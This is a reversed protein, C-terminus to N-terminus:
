PGAEAVHIGEEALHARARGMRRDTSFAYWNEPTDEDHHGELLDGLQDLDVSLLREPLPNGQVVALLLMALESDGSFARDSLRNHLSFALSALRDPNRSYSSLVAAGAQQLVASLNHGELAAAVAEPDKRYAAGRLEQASVAVSPTKQDPWGFDLMPDRERPRRPPRNSGDDDAWGRGYQDPIDGWGWFAVPSAPVIGYEERPDILDEAVTCRHTWQDGLDFVYRFHEGPRVTDMVMTSTLDESRPPMIGVDTSEVETGTEPDTITRYDALTFLSLHSLDWRAFAHNIAQALHAFTHAPGRRLDARPVAVAGHGPWGATGGQDVDM